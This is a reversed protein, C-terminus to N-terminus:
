NELNAYLRKGEENKTWRSYEGTFSTSIHHSMSFVLVGDDFPLNNIDGFLKDIGEAYDFFLLAQSSILNIM